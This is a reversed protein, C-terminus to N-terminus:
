WERSKCLPGTDPDPGTAAHWPRPRTRPGARALIRAACASRSSRGICMLECWRRYLHVGAADKNACRRERLAVGRILDGLMIHWSVVDVALHHATLLLAAQGPGSYWVARVMAGAHPDIDDM